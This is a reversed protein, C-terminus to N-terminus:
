FSFMAAQKKTGSYNVLAGFEERPIGSSTQVSSLNCRHKQQKIRDRFRWIRSSQIICLFMKKRSRPRISHKICEYDKPNQASQPESCLIGERSGLDYVYLSSLATM